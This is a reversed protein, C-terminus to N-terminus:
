RCAPGEVAGGMRAAPIQTALELAGDLDGVLRGHDLTLMRDAREAVWQDHTVLILTIALDRRPLRNAIDRPRAPPRRPARLDRRAGPLRMRGPDGDNARLPRGDPYQRGSCARCCGGDDFYKPLGSTHALLQRPTTRPLAVLSRWRALLEAGLQDGVPEDLALRGDHAL